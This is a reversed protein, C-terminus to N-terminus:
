GAKTALIAIKDLTLRGSEVRSGWLERVRAAADGECGTRELWAEFDIEHELIRVERVELQAGALADRWEQESYNRVHSPDRLREAEEAKPGMNLTDVLLVRDRTVRAMERLAAHLDGFHHAATRCTVADFSADAFPLDEARCVVDPRMGPAPDCTVVAAGEERLRRAVHGGGSAVDLVNRAGAAWTVIQELDDGRRHADSEVYLRARESWVDTM